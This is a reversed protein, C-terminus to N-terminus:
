AKTPSTSVAIIVSINKTSPAGFPATKHILSVTKQSSAYKSFNIPDASMLFVLSGHGMWWAVMKYKEDPPCSPNEDYFVSMNNFGRFEFRELLTPDFLINNDKSGDFEVRGLIPKTWHVSDDSVAYCVLQSKNEICYYMHWKGEAFFTSFISAHNGEWPDNLEM